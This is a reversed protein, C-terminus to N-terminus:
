APAARPYVHAICHLFVYVPPDTSDVWEILAEDYMHTPLSPLARYLNKIIADAYRAKKKPGSQYKVSVRQYLRVRIHGHPAPLSLARVRRSQMIDALSKSEDAQAARPEGGGGGGGGVPEQLQYDKLLEERQRAGEAEDDDSYVPRSRGVPAPRPAKQEVPEASAAAAAAAPSPPPFPSDPLPVSAPSPLRASGLAHVAAPDERFRIPVAPFRESTSSSSTSDISM